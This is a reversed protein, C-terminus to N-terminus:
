ARRAEGERGQRLSEEGGEVAVPPAEIEPPLGRPPPHHVAREDTEAAEDRQVTHGAALAVRGAIEKAGVRAV